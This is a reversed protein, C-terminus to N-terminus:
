LLKAAIFVGVAIGSGASIIVDPREQRLMRLARFTASLLPLPHKASQEREWRVREDELLAVTDPAQVAVWSVTHRSWWPKLALLDQLVGGSSSIMLVRYRRQASGPWPQSGDGGM